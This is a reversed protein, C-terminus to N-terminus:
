LEGEHQLQNLLDVLYQRQVKSLSDGQMTEFFTEFLDLQSTKMIQRSLTATSTIQERRLFQLQLVNPYVARLKGMVDLLAGTDNLRALIYDDSQRDTPAAAILESLSGEIIRMDRLPQLPRESLEIRGNADIDVRTVSKKHTAESFSYKLISGAYRIHECGCHQPRHLHGLAVYDFDAFLEAPVSDIGGVSLVRESESELGGSVFCHAMLIAPRGPQRQQQVQMLLAQMAQAHSSINNDGSIQRVSLPGAYPLGFIDYCVGDVDINVASVTENLPGFIHLGAGELLDSAFGLREASDHNGAIMVVQCGLERCLTNLTQGLLAVAEAPPVARDYVDGAILLVDIAEAKVFAVIQALVHAQDELLSLGHLQRGLHWDSTHLLRM